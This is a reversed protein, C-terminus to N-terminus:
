PIYYMINYYNLYCMINVDDFWVVLPTMNIFVHLRNYRFTCDNFYLNYFILIQLHKLLANNHAIKFTM